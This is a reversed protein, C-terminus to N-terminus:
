GFGLMLLIQDFEYRQKLRAQLTCALSHLQLMRFTPQLNPVRVHTAQCPVTALNKLIKM